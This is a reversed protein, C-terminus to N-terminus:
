ALRIMRRQWRAPQVESESGVEVIEDPQADLETPRKVKAMTAPQAKIDSM